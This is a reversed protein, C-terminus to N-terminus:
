IKETTFWGDSMRKEVTEGCWPCDIDEKEKGGAEGMPHETVHFKKGCFPCINDYNWAM